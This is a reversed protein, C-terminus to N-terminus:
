RKIKGNATKELPENQINKKYIRKYIPLRTNLENIYALVDDANEDKAYVATCIRDNEAYVRCELIDTCKYLLNELEEPSVNEGSSLIILNKKRGTIYLYGDEDIYGLDGTHLIGNVLTKDTEKQNKYYEKMICPSKVCIEDDEILIEVHKYLKGVSKLHNICDCNFTISGCTETMGYYQGYQIGNDMFIQVTTLDTPAGGTVVLKAGGLREKHGRILSKKWLNLTAPIVAASDIEQDELDMLVNGPNISLYTSAENEFHIVWGLLGGVHYFPFNTYVRLGNTSEFPANEDYLARHEGFLSGASLVVGKSKGTTGSTFIIFADTAFEEESFDKLEVMGNNDQLMDTKSLIVAKTVEKQIKDNDAILYEVDANEIQYLINDLSEHINLPVAVARSFVIAALLITYEYSSDCYIGIKKGELDGIISKLNFACKQSKELYSRFSVDFTNEGDLIRFASKEDAKKIGELFKVM